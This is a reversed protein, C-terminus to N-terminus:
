VVDRPEGVDDSITNQRALLLDRDFPHLVSTGRNGGDNGPKVRCDMKKALFKIRLLLHVRPDFGRTVVCPAALVPNIRGPWANTSRIQCESGVQCCTRSAFTLDLAGRASHHRSHDKSELM